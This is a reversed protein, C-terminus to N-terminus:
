SDRHNEDTFVSSAVHFAELILHFWYIGFTTPVIAIGEVNEM